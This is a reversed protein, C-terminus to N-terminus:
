LNSESAPLNSATSLGDNISADDVYEDLATCGSASAVMSWIITIAQEKIQCPLKYCSFSVPLSETM